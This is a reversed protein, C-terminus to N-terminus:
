DGWREKNAARMRAQYERTVRDPKVACTEEVDVVEVHESNFRRSFVKQLEPMSEWEARAKVVARGREMELKTIEARSKDLRTRATM